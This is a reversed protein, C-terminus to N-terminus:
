DVSAIREGLLLTLDGLLGGKLRLVDLAGRFRAVGMECVMMLIMTHNITKSLVAM